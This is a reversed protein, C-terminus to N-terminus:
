TRVDDEERLAEIVDTLDDLSGQLWDKIAKADPYVKVEPGVFINNITIHTKKTESNVGLDVILLKKM